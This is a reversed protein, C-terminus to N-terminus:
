RPVATFRISVAFGSEVPSHLVPKNIYDYTNTSYRLRYRGASHREHDPISLTPWPQSTKPAGDRCTLAKRSIDGCFATPTRTPEASGLVRPTPSTSRFHRHRGQVERARITGQWSGLDAVSAPTRAFHDNHRGARKEDYNGRLRGVATRQHDAPRGRVWGTPGPPDAHHIQNLTRGTHWDSLARARHAPRRGLAGSCRPRRGRRPTPQDTGRTRRPGMRNTTRTRAPCAAGTRHTPM